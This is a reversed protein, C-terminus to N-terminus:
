YRLNKLEFELQERKAPKLLYGSPRVSLVERAYEREDCVTHFIINVEPNITQVNKALTVGDTGCLEIESILVDCGHDKVFTCAEEAGEFAHIKAEPLIRRVNQELGKLMIAHDDVCVITM